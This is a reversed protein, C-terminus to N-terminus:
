GSHVVYALIWLFVRGFGPKKTRSLAPFVFEVFLTAASGTSATFKVSSNNRLSHHSKCYQKGNTPALLAAAPAAVRANYKNGQRSKAYDIWTIKKTNEEWAAFPNVSCSEV